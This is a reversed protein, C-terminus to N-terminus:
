GLLLASTQRPQPGRSIMSSDTSKHLSDGETEDLRLSPLGYLLVNQEPKSPALRPRRYRYTCDLVKPPSERIEADSSFLLWWVLILSCLLATAVPSTRFALAVWQIFVFWLMSQPAACTTSLDFLHFSLFILSLTYMLVLLVYLMSEPDERLGTQFERILCRSSYVTFAMQNTMQAHCQTGSM